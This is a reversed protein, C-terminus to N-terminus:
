DLMTPQDDFRALLTITNPKLSVNDGGRTLKLGDFRSREM